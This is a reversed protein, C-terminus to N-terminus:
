YNWVPRISFGYGRLLGAMKVEKSTFYISSGDQTDFDLCSAWYVGTEAYKEFSSDDYYGAAPLYIFTFEDNKDSVEYGADGDGWDIWEWNCKNKLNQWENYTPLRWQHYLKVYAVDDELSLKQWSDTYKTFKKAEFDCFSYTEWNFVSKTEIEGWAYYDGPEWWMDAGLNCDAWWTGALYTYSIGKRNIKYIKAEPVKKNKYALDKSSITMGPLLAVYVTDNTVDFTFEKDDDGITIEVVKNSTVIELYATSNKMEVGSVGDPAYQFDDSVMCSCEKVADDLKAFGKPLGLEELTYFGRKIGMEDFLAYLPVSNIDVNSPVKLKGVFTATAGDESICNECLTLVGLLEQDFKGTPYVVTKAYIAIEDGVEFGLKARTGDYDIVHAKTTSPKQTQQKVTLSFPVTADNLENSEKDKNNCSTVFLMTVVLLVFRMLKTNM